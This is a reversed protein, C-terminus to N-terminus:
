LDDLQHIVEKPLYGVQRSRRSAVKVLKEDSNFDQYVLFREGIQSKLEYSKQPTYKETAVHM